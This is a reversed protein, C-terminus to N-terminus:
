GNIMEEITRMPLILRDRSKPLPQFRYKLYFGRAGAKADVVVAWSAVESSSAWARELADMLLSEGLRQGQFAQSVAMRGLLTVPIPFRPLKKGLEFPLENAILSHASLTYYGAVTTGDPTLVFVAALNRRSDQGAQQRIYIDLEPIGCFFLQREHDQKLPEIRFDRRARDRIM